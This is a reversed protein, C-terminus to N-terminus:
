ELPEIEQNAIYTLEKELYRNLQLLLEKEKELRKKMEASKM